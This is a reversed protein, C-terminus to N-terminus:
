GHPQDSFNKPAHSPSQHSMLAAPNYIHCRGHTPLRTHPSKLRTPTLQGLAPDSTQPPMQPLLILTPVVTRASSVPLSGDPVANTATAVAQLNHHQTHSYVGTSTYLNETETHNSTNPALPLTFSIQSPM